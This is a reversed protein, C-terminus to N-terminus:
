RRSGIFTGAVALLLAFNLRWVMRTNECLVPPHSVNKPDLSHLSCPGRWPSISSSVKAHTRSPYINGVPHNRRTIVPTEITGTHGDVLTTGLNEASANTFNRRSQRAPPVIRNLLNCNKMGSKPRFRGDCCSFCFM